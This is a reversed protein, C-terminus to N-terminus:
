DKRYRTNEWGAANIPFGTTWTEGMTMISIMEELNGFCNKEECLVEDHVTLIPHYGAGDLRLMAGAMIDRSLAQVANETLLGGYLFYKSWLKTLSDVGWVSVCDKWAEGGTDYDRWPMLQPEIKPDFYYLMRGSPLRMMLFKGVVKFKIDRYGTITGPKEVASFCADELGRWLRVTMPHSSRWGDVANQKIEVDTMGLHMGQSKEMKRFAGTSGAYGCNHVLVGSVTFRHRPGANILDYVKVRKVPGSYRALEKKERPSSVPSTRDCRSPRSRPAYTASRYFALIPLTNQVVYRGRLNTEVEPHQASPGFFQVMELERGRLARQQRDQRDAPKPLHRHQSRDMRVGGLPIRVSVRDWTRRVRQLAALEPEPVAAECQEHAEDVVLAMQAAPQMDSLRKIKRDCSFEPVDVTYRPVGPVTSSCVGRPTETQYVTDGPPNNGGLRLACRGHGTQTLRAHRSAAVGFAVPRSAGETWVLHDSTATLGEYSIVDKTGKCISGQQNVWDIGDWVLDEPTVLQIPVEGRDTLVLSGEAICALDCVKGVADMKKFSKDTKRGAEIQEYPVGYIGAASVCYLRKGSRYADLIYQEGALWALGRGEIASYDACIFRHDDSPILMGRISSQAADLPNAYFMDTLGLKAAQIAEPVEDAELLLGRSPLNQLQVRKATWRGTGAGDFMLLGRMRDDAEACQLYANYKATSSKSLQQRIELLRKYRQEKSLETM